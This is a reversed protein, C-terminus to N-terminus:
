KAGGELAASRGNNTLMLIEDLTLVRDWVGLDDLISEFGSVTIPWPAKGPPPLTMTKILRGDCYIRVERTAARWTMVWSRLGEGPSPAASARCDTNKGDTGIRRLIVRSKSIELGWGKGNRGRDERGPRRNIATSRNRDAWVSISFDGAAPLTESGSIVNEGRAIQMAAGRVGAGAGNGFTKWLLLGKRLQAVDPSGTPGVELAISLGEKGSLKAVLLNEGKKLAQLATAAMEIQRTSQDEANANRDDAAVDCLRYGNLTVEAACDTVIRIRSHDGGDYKFKMRMTRSKVIAGIGPEVNVGVLRKWRIAPGGPSALWILNPKETPKPTKPLSERMDGATALTARIDDLGPAKVGYFRDLAVLRANALPLQRAAVDARILGGVVEVHERTWDLKKALAAARAQVAPAKHGRLRKLEAALADWRKQRFLWLAQTMAKPATSPFAFPGPAAGTIRVAKRPLMLAVGLGATSSVGAFRYQPLYVLDGATDHGIRYAWLLNNMFLQFEAKPGMSLGLPNEAMNFIAGGHGGQCGMYAYCNPRAFRWAVDREGLIHFGLGAKGSKGNDSIGLPRPPHNGYPISGGAYKGFFRISRALASADYRAGTERILGLGIFATLGAQNLEGYGGQMGHGWSGSPFQARRLIDAHGEADKLVSADGTLLYYECVSVLNYGTGWVFHGGTSPKLRYVMRRANEIAEHEGSALFVWPHFFRRDDRIDMLRRLIEDALTKTVPCDYPWTKAFSGRVGLTLVVDRYAGDRVIHLTLKGGCRPSEAAAIAYGLIATTDPWDSLRHGNAGLILDGLALPGDALSGKEMGLVIVEAVDSDYSVWAGTPGLPIKGHKPRGFLTVHKYRLGLGKKEAETPKWSGHRFEFKARLDVQAAALQEPGPLKGLVSSEGAYLDRRVHHVDNLAEEILDPADAAMASVAVAGCIVAFACRRIQLM